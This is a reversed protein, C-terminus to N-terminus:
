RLGPAASRNMVRADTTEPSCARSTTRRWTAEPADDSELKRDRARQLRLRHRRTRVPSARHGLGPDGRDHRLSSPARGDLEDRDDDQGWQWPVPGRVRHPTRWARINGPDVRHQALGSRVDMLVTSPTVRVGWKSSTRPWSAATITRSTAARPSALTASMTSPSRRVWPRSWAYVVMMVTILRRWSFPTRSRSRRPRCYM